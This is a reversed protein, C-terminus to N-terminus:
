TVVLADLATAVQLADLPRGHGELMAGHPNSVEPNSGAATPKVQSNAL